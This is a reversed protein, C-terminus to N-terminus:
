TPSSLRRYNSLTMRSLALLCSFLFSSLLFLNRQTAARARLLPEPAAGVGCVESRNMGCLLYDAEDRRKRRRWQGRRHQLRRAGAAAGDSHARAVQPSGNAYM